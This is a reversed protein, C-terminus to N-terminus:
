QVNISAINLQQISGGDLYWLTMPPSTRAARASPSAPQIQLYYGQSMLQQSVDTGIATILSAIQTTSLPVGTRIAGFNLAQQIPGGTNGTGGALTEEILAYGTANYPLSPVNRLLTKLSAQINSNLWIQNVYSSAWDFPGTVNGTFYWEDQESNSAFEGYANYGNTVLATYVADTTVSPVLGANPSRFALETRGNQQQFNLSAMWSLVMMASLFAPNNSTYLGGWSPITGAYGAAITEALWTTTSGSETANSDSDYGAYAYQSNTGSAWQSFALKTATVPEFDTTFGGWNRQLTLLQAMAAAPTAAIAGLSITGGNSAALGLAAAATGTAYAVSSSLGTSNSTVQFEGAQANWVLSFNPTTFAALITTAAQTFSTASSLNFSSSTNVTGDVDIILTGSIAQLQPLTLGSLGSGLLWASAVSANYGLVYLVGPLSSMGQIGGFYEVAGEYILTDEGFYDGVDNASTFSLLTGLPALAQESLVVGALTTGGGGTSLVEPTVQSVQNMSIPM